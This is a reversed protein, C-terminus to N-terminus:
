GRKSRMAKVVAIGDGAAFRQYEDTGVGCLAVRGSEDFHLGWGYQKPLPSARLCAQSRGFFQARLAPGADEPPIEKHRIYSEFLVDEQTYHYPKEALLEYQIMAVTKRGGREAPVIGCAAPCDDAVQIFTNVYNIAVSGGRKWL